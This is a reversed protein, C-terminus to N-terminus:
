EGGQEQEEEIRFLLVTVNDSADRELAIDLLAECVSQPTEGQRIVQLIESDPMENILGDSCLLLWQGVELKVEYIDAETNRSTGLARTILNKQPHIRAQEPTLNGKQVMAEVVSHDRTVRRIEEQSIIYARSDGINVAYVQMEDVIVGVLTTGMGSCEKDSAAYFFIERNGEEIAARLAGAHPETCGNEFHKRMHEEFVQVGLRSAIDGAKAGGMGDCVVGWARTEDIQEYCCADQNQSRMAGRDTIGYVSVM